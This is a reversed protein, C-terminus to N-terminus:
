IQEFPTSSFNTLSDTWVGNGHKRHFVVFQKGLQVAVSDGDETLWWSTHVGRLPRAVSVSTARPSSSRHLHLIHSGGGTMYVDYLKEKEAGGEGVPHITLYTSNVEEYRFLQSPPYTKSLFAVTNFQGFVLTIDNWVRWNWAGLYTNANGKMMGSFTKVVIMSVTITFVTGTMALLVFLGIAKQM